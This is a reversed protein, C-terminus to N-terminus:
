LLPLSSCVSTRTSFPVFNSFLSELSERIGLRIKTEDEAPFYLYFALALKIAFRGAMSLGRIVSCGLIGGLASQSVPKFGDRMFSHIMESLLLFCRSLVLAFGCFSVM